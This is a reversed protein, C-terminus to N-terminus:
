KTEEMILHAVGEPDKWMPVHGWGKPELWKTHTPLETRCRTSRILLFDHTGFAITIPVEISQGACFTGVNDFTEKFSDSQAFEMATRLANDYPMHWSGTSVPVTMILERFPPIRLLASTFTPFTRIAFRMGFFLYRVHSPPKKWLGAPSIAVVKRAMGRKAAELAMYGGMSNGAIDVPDIIGIRHLESGLADIFNAATPLLHSPLPPTKGFGPIDFAIVRREQALLPIVPHWVEHTIGIGHLLILPRGKGNESFYWMSKSLLM